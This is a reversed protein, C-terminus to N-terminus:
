RSDATAPPQTLEEPLCGVMPGLEGAAVEFRVAYVTQREDAEVRGVQVVVGRTGAPAVLAGEELEPIGGDNRIAERAFVVDGVIYRVPPEAREDEESASRRAAYESALAEFGGDVSYVESFGFAGFQAAYEQSMHGHYCYIVVT